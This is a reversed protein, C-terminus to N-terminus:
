QLLRSNKEVNHCICDAILQKLLSTPVFGSDFKFYVIREKSSNPPNRGNDRPVLSPVIITDGSDPLSPYGEESFWAERTIRAVLHFHVLIDVVQQKTVKVAGPYDSHIVHTPSSELSSYWIQNVTEM